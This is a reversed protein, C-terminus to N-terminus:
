NLSRRYTVVYICCLKVNQSGRDRKGVNLRVNKFLGVYAQKVRLIQLRRYFSSVRILSITLFTTNLSNHLVQFITFM